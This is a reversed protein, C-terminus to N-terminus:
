VQSLLVHSNNLNTCIYSCRSAAVSLVVCLEVAHTLLTAVGVAHVCRRARASRHTSYPISMRSVM